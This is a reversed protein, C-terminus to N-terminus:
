KSGKIAKIQEKTMKAKIQEETNRPENMSLRMGVRVIQSPHNRVVDETMMGNDIWWKDTRETFVFRQCYIRIKDDTRPVHLQMIMEYGNGKIDAGRRFLMEELVREDKFGSKIYKEFLVPELVGLDIMSLYQNFEFAEQKKSM